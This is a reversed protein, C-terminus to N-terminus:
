WLFSKQESVQKEGDWLTARWAVLNGFSKFAEGSLVLSSWNSFLGTKKVPMELKESHSTDGQGGRIEMRLVLNKSRSGTWQINFSLGACQEPHKRLVAQYADREYLSPSLSNRGKSDILQPLVKKIRASGAEVNSSVAVALFALALLKITRTFVPANYSHLTKRCRIKFLWFSIV